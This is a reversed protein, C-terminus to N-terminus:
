KSLFRLLLKEMDVGTNFVGLVKQGDNGTFTFTIQGIPDFSLKSIGQHSKRWLLLEQEEQIYDVSINLKNPDIKQLVDVLCVAFCQLNEKQLKNMDNHVSISNLWEEVVSISIAGYENCGKVSSYDAAYLESQQLLMENVLLNLTNPM